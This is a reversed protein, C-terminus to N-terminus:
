QVIHYRKLIWTINDNTTFQIMGINKAYISQKTYDIGTVINTVQLINKYFYNNVSLSDFQNISGGLDEAAFIKDGIFYVRSYSQNTLSNFESIFFTQKNFDTANNPEFPYVSKSLKGLLKGSITYSYDEYCHNLENGYKYQTNDGTRNTFDDVYFSDIDNNSTNEYVWYSGNKFLFYDKAMQPLPMTNNTCDVNKKDNTKTCTSSQLILFLSTYISLQLLKKM